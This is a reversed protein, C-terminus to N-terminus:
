AADAVISKTTTIVEDKYRVVDAIAQKEIARIYREMYSFNIKNEDDVPLSISLDKIKAYSCMNNYSFMRTLWSLASTIYLGIQNTLEYEKPILTFVRAHTVEKYEFDRYFVNGFMDVTITNAPLIRAEMDTCGIIGMNELGSSVVPYGNGNIHIKKIDINGNQWTFLAGIKFTKFTIQGDGSDAEVADAEDGEFRQYLSLVNKDEDTLEYDDLGTVKLYTDLEAIRDQELEAIRDQMYQWDIDDVTYDHNPVPNEIVPLTM